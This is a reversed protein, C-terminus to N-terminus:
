GVALARTGDVENGYHIWGPRQRRSFLEVYPGPSLREVLTYFADPKASHRGVQAAFRSRVGRDKVKFKGRTALLCVEHSARVIRGMGFHAKGHKTVKEWVLESKLTFGWAQIVDLAEQQMAAVRWLCLLADDAIPPLPFNCLAEVDLCPYHKIAGRRNGPLKDGFLWPCDAVLVRAPPTM